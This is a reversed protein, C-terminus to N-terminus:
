PLEEFMITGNAVIGAAPASDLSLVFATSPAGVPPRAGIPNAWLFGNLLSWQDNWIDVITGSSTAQTTDNAHATATAAADGVVVPRPTPTSGGSGATLTAPVYRLRIRLSGVTTQTIQGLAISQIAVIKSSGPIITFIDQVASITVGSFSVSYLRGSIAM